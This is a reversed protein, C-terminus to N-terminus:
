NGVRTFLAQANHKYKSDAEEQDIWYRTEDDIMAFLYKM